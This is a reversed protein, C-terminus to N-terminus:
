CAENDYLALTTERGTKLLLHKLPMGVGAFIHQIRGQLDLAGKLVTLIELLKMLLIWLQTEQV